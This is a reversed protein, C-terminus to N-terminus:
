VLVWFLLLFALVRAYEAASDKILFVKLLGKCGKELAALLESTGSLIGLEGSPARARASPRPRPAITPDTWPVAGWGTAM